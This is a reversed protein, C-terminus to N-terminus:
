YDASNLQYWIEKLNSITDPLWRYGIVSRVLQPSEEVHRLTDVLNEELRDMTEFNLNPFFPERIVNLLNEIPNLQPSYPPLPILTINEPLNLGASRHAAAGDLVLAINEDHYRRSLDTLFCAFAETRM